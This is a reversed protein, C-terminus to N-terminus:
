AKRRRTAAVLGLAGLLLWGAAPLPVVSLTLTPDAHTTNEKSAFSLVDSDSTNTSRLGFTVYDGTAPNNLFSALSALSFSLVTGAALGETVEFSGLFTTAPSAPNLGAAGMAPANNWTATDEDWSLVPGSFAYVEVFTDLLSAGSLALSLSATEIEGGVGSLDFGLLARRVFRAGGQEKVALTTGTGFAQNSFFEPSNGSRLFTDDTPNLAVTAASAGTATLCAVALVSLFHRM